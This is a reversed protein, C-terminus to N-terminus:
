NHDANSSPAFRMHITQLPPLNDDLTANLYMKILTQWTSITLIYGSPSLREELLCVMQFQTEQM